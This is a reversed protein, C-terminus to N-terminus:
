SPSAELPFIWATPSPELATGGKRGMKSGTDSQPIWPSLLLRRALASSLSRYRARPTTGAM